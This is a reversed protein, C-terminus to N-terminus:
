SKKVRTKKKEEQATEFAESTKKSKNTASALLSKLSKRTGPVSDKPTQSDQWIGIKRNIDKQIISKVKKTPKKIKTKTM